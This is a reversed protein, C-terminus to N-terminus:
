GVGRGGCCKPILRVAKDTPVRAMGKPVEDIFGMFDGNMFQGLGNKSKRVFSGNELAMDVNHAWTYYEVAESIVSKAVREAISSELHISTGFEEPRVDSIDPQGLAGHEYLLQADERKKKTYEKGIESLMRAAEAPSVGDDPTYYSKPSSREFNPGNNIFLGFGTGPRRVFMGVSYEEGDSTRGKAWFSPPEANMGGTWHTEITRGLVHSLKAVEKALANRYTKIQNNRIVGKVWEKATSLDFEKGYAEKAAKAYIAEVRKPDVLVLEQAMETIEKMEAEGRVWYSHDDSYAYTWDHDKLAKEFEAFTTARGAAVREAIRSENMKESGKLGHMWEFDFVKALAARTAVDKADEIVGDRDATDMKEFYARAVSYEGRRVFDSIKTVVYLSAMMYNKQKRDVCAQAETMMRGIVGKLHQHVIRKEAMTVTSENDPVFGAVIKSVISTENMDSEKGNRFHHDQGSCFQGM